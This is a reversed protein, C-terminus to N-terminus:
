EHRKARRRARTECIQYALLPIALNVILNGLDLNASSRYKGPSSIVTRHYFNLPAGLTRHEVLTEGPNLSPALGFGNGTLLFGLQMGLVLTLVVMTSLHIQWRKARPADTM